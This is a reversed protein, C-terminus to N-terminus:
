RSPNGAPDYEKFGLAVLDGWLDRAAIRILHRGIASRFTISEETQAWEPLVLDGSPKWIWVFEDMKPSWYFVQVHDEPRSMRVHFEFRQGMNPLFLRHRVHDRDFPSLYEGRHEM